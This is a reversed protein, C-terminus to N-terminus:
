GRGRWRGRRRRKERGASVRRGEAGVVAVEGEEGEEERGREGGPREGTDDCM